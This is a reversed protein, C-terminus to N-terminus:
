SAPQDSATDALTTFPVYSCDTVEGGTIIYMLSPDMLTVPGKDIDNVLFVKSYEGSITCAVTYYYHGSLDAVVFVSPTSDSGDYDLLALSAAQATKPITDQSSIRFRSVGYKAMTDDYFHMVRNQDDAAVVSGYSAFLSSTYGVNDLYFNGDDDATLQYTSSTDVISVYTIGEDASNEAPPPESFDEFDTVGTPAATDLTEVPDTGVVTTSAPLDTTTRAEIARETLAETTIPAETTAPDDATTPSDTVTPTDTTTPDDTPTTAPADTPTDTPADTPTATTTTSTVTSPTAPSGIL